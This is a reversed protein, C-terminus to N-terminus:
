THNFNIGGSTMPINVDQWLDRLFTALLSSDRESLRPMFTNRLAIVISENEDKLMDEAKLVEGIDTINALYSNTKRM